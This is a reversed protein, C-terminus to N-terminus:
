VNGSIFRPLQQLLLPKCSIQESVIAGLVHNISFLNRARKLHELVWVLLFIIVGQLQTMIELCGTRDLAAKYRRRGKGKWRRKM